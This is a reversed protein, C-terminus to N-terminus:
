QVSEPVASGGGGLFINQLNEAAVKVSSCNRRRQAQDKGLERRKLQRQSHHALRVAEKLNPKKSLMKSM